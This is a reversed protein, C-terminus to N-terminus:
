RGIRAPIAIAADARFLHFIDKGAYRAIVPKVVDEWGDASHVNGRRLNCRELHGCQNFM